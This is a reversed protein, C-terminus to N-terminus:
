LLIQLLQLFLSKFHSVPLGNPFCRDFFNPRPRGIAVKLSDVILSTYIIAYTLGSIPLLKVWILNKNLYLNLFSVSYLSIFTNKIGWSSPIHRLSWYLSYLRSLRHHWELNVHSYWLSAIVIFFYVPVIASPITNDKLPFMLSKLIEENVYRHFPHILNVLGSCVILVFLLFWDFLYRKLLSLLEKNRTM